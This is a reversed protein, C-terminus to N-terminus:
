RGEGNFCRAVGPVEVFLKREKGVACLVVLDQPETPQPEGGQRGMAGAHGRASRHAADIVTSPVGAGTLLEKLRRAYHNLKRKPKAPQGEGILTPVAVDGIGPEQAAKAEAEEEAQLQCLADRIQLLQYVTDADDPDTALEASERQISRNLAAIIAAFGDADEQEWQPDGPESAEKTSGEWDAPLADTANLRRANKIIHSKVEPTPNRGYAKVADELSARDPTPYSGGVIEGSDDREPIAQGKKALAAREAPSFEAM